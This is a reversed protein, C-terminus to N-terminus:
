VYGEERGSTKVHYYGSEPAPDLLTLPPEFTTLLRIPAYESSPDPRLNVNHTVRATQASAITAFCLLLFGIAAATTRVSAGKEGM